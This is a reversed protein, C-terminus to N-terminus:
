GPCQSSPVSGGRLVEAKWVPELEFSGCPSILFVTLVLETRGLECSGIRHRLFAQLPSAKLCLEIDNDSCHRHSGRCLKGASSGMAQIHANFAAREVGVASAFRLTCVNASTM